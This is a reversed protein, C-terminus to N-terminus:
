ICIIYQWKLPQGYKAVKKLDSLLGFKKLFYYFFFMIKTQNQM